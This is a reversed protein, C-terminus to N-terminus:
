KESKNKLTNSNELNRMLIKILFELNNIFGLTNIADFSKFKLDNIFIRENINTEFLKNYGSSILRWQVMLDLKWINKSLNFNPFIFEYKDSNNEKTM